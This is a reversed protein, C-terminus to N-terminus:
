TMGTVELAVTETAAVDATTASTCATMSVAGLGLILALFAKM